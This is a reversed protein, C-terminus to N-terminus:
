IELIQHRKPWLNQLNRERACVKCMFARICTCHVSTTHVSTESICPVSLISCLQANPVAVLTTHRRKSFTRYVTKANAEHLDSVERGGGVARKGYHKLYNVGVKAGAGALAAVRTVKGSAITEQEEIM